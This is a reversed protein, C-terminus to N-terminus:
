FSETRLNNTTYHYRNYRITKSHSKYTFNLAMQILYDNVKSSTPRLIVDRFYVLLKEFSDGSEQCNVSNFVPNVDCWRICLFVSVKYKM